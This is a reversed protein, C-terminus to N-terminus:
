RRVLLSLMRLMVYNHISSQCVMDFNLIYLVCLCITLQFPFDLFFLIINFSKVLQCYRSNRNKMKEWFMPYYGYLEIRKEKCDNEKYSVDSFGYYQLVLKRLQNFKKAINQNLFNCHERLLLIIAVKDLKSCAEIHYHEDIEDLITELEKRNKYVPCLKELLEQKSNEEINNQLIEVKQNSTDSIGIELDLYELIRNFFTRLSVYPTYQYSFGFLTTMKYLVGNIGEISSQVIDFLQKHREDLRVYEVKNYALMVDENIISIIEQVIAKCYKLSSLRDIHILFDVEAEILLYNSFLDLSLLKNKLSDGIEVIDGVTLDAKEFFLIAKSIRNIFLYLDNSLSDSLEFMNDYREIVRVYIQYEGDYIYCLQRLEDTALYASGVLFSSSTTQSVEASTGSDATILSM